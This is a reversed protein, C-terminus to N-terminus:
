CRSVRTVRDNVLQSLRGTRGAMRRNPQRALLDFPSTYTVSVSGRDFTCNSLVADLLRRQETPDQSKYLNEAQKALELIKTATVLMAPQQLRTQEGDITRLEVEWQESKRTWFMELIRGDVFDEYGRDLKSMVARRRKDLRSLADTRQRETEVDTSTIAAALDDAIAPTIQIPRICDGLPDGLREERIYTNTVRRVAQGALCFRRLLDSEAPDSLRRVQVPASQRAFAHPRNGRSQRDRTGKKVEESLNDVYNKAM